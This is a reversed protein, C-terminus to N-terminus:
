HDTGHILADLFAVLDIVAAEREPFLDSRFTLVERLTRPWGAMPTIAQVIEITSPEPFRDFLGHEFAVALDAALRARNQVIWMSQVAQLQRILEVKQAQTIVTRHRTPRRSEGPTGLPLEEREGEANTYVLTVPLETGRRAGIRDRLTRLDLGGPGPVDGLEAHLATSFQTSRWGPPRISSAGRPVALLAEQRRDAAPRAPDFNWCNPTTILIDEAYVRCSDVVVTQTPCNIETTRLWRLLQGLNLYRRRDERTDAFALLTDDEWTMGHGVWYVFLAAAPCDPLEEHFVRYVTERDAPRVQLGSEEAAEKNWDLPSVLATINGAPVGNSMLWRGMRCADAAPGDINWGPEAYREIGVVVARTEGGATV